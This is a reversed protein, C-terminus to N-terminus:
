AWRAKGKKVRGIYVGRIYSEEVYLGGLIHGRLM